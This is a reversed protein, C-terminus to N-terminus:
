VSNGNNQNKSVVNVPQMIDYACSAMSHDQSANLARLELEGILKYVKIKFESILKRPFSQVTAFMSQFLLLTSEYTTDSLDSITFDCKKIKDFDLKLLKSSVDNMQSDGSRKLMKIDSKLEQKIKGNLGQNSYPGTNTKYSTNRESNRNQKDSNFQDSNSNSKESNEICKESSKASSSNMDCKESKYMCYIDKRNYRRKSKLSKYRGDGGGAKLKSIRNAKRKAIFRVNKPRM